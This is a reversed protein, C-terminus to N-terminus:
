RHLPRHRHLNFTCTATHPTQPPAPPPIHRHFPTTHHFHHHHHTHTHTHPPIPHLRLALDVCGDDPLVEAMGDLLDLVSMLRAPSGDVDARKIAVAITGCITAKGSGPAKNNKGAKGGAGRRGGKKGAAAAAAAPLTLAVAPLPKAPCGFYAEIFAVFARQLGPDGPFSPPAGGAGTAGTAGTAGVSGGATVIPQLYITTRGEAGLAPWDQAVMHQVTQNLEEAEFGRRDVNGLATAALVRNRPAKADGAEAVAAGTLRADLGPNLHRSTPILVANSSSRDPGLAWDRYQILVGEKVCDELYAPPVALMGHDCGEELRDDVDDDSWCQVLFKATATTDVVSGGNGAILSALKRKAKASTHAAIMFRISEFIPAPAPAPPVTMRRKKYMHSAPVANGNESSRDAASRGATRTASRRRSAPESSKVADMDNVPYAAPDRDLGLRERAGAFSIFLM